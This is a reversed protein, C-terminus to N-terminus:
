DFNIHKGIHGVLIQGDVFDAFGEHFYIRHFYYTNDGAIGSSCLKLHPECCIMKKIGNSDLFEYTFKPKRKAEGELSATEDLHANLSFHELVQQRNRHGDQSQKLKDNLATLHYIVKASFEPLIDGVTQWNNEHFLINPFYKTCEVMFFAANIPYLSLFYRRFQLWGKRDYVIQLPPEIGQIENFAVLGHCLQENHEPLLIEIVEQSTHTTTESEILIKQLSNYVDRDIYQKALQWNYILDSLVIDQLFTVNYIDPHVYLKNTEKYKRIYVFDEALAKAKNEIENTALNANNAFSEAVIYLEAVM